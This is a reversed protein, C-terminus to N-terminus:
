NKLTSIKLLCRETLEVSLDNNKRTELTTESLIEIVDSLIDKNWTNLQKHLSPHRKFFIPPKSNEIVHKNPLNLDEKEALLEMLKIVHNSTIILIQTPNFENIVSHYLRSVSKTKKEFVTDVLDTVIINSSSVIISEVDSKSIEDGNQHYNLIKEIESITNGYDNGLSAVILEKADKDMALDREKLKNNLLNVIDINSSNYCPIVIFNKDNEFAKRSPSTTKLEGANIILISQSKSDIICDVQEKSLDSTLDLLIVRKDNTLAYTDLEDALLGPNDNLQTSNITSLLFPDNQNPIYHNVLAKTRYNILGSDQGHILIGQIDDSPKKIFDDAQKNRLIM